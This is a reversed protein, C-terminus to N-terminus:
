TFINSDNVRIYIDVTIYNNNIVEVAGWSISQGINKSTKAL